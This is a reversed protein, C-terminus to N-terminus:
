EQSSKKDFFTARTKQILRIIYTVTLGILIFSSVQMLRIIGFVFFTDAPEMSNVQSEFMVTTFVLPYILYIFINIISLRKQTLYIASFINKIFSLLFLLYLLALNGGVFIAGANIRMALPVWVGSLFFTALVPIVIEPFLVFLWNDLWHKDKTSTKKLESM